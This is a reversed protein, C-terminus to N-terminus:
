EGVRGQKLAALPGATPRCSLHSNMGEVPGVEERAHAPLGEHAGSWVKAGVM